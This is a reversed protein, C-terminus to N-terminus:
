QDETAVQWESLNIRSIETLLNLSNRLWNMECNVKSILPFTDFTVNWYLITSFSAYKAFHHGKLPFAFYFTYRM